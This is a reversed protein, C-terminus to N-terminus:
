IKMDVAEFELAAINEALRRHDHADLYLGQVISYGLGDETRVPFGCILGSPVGYSGDSEVAVSFWDHYPTPTTLSRITAAVAGAIAPASARGEVVDGLREELASEFGWDERTISAPAPHGDIRALRLDVFAPPGSCGWTTLGSVSSAPMGARAAVLGAACTEIHRTLAFWHGPPVDQAHARAIMAHINAPFAAVLVRANPAAVNIARGWAVFAAADAQSLAPEGVPWPRLDDLLVVWDVGALARWPDCEVRLDELVSHEVGALEAEAAERSLTCAPDDLLSLVVRRGPGFMEGAATRPLLARAVRGGAKTVAVKVTHGM